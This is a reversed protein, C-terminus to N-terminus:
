VGQWSGDRKAVWRIWWCFAVIGGSGLWMCALVTWWGANVQFGCFIRDAPSGTQLLLESVVVGPAILLPVTFVGVFNGYFCISWTM